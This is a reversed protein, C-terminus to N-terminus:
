LRGPGGVGLLCPPRSEKPPLESGGRSISLSTFSWPPLEAFVGTRKLKKAEFNLM